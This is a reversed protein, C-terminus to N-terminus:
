DSRKAAREIIDTTSIGAMRPVNIFRDADLIVQYQSNYEKAKQSDGDMLNGAVYDIKLKDLYDMTLDLPAHAVVEDVSPCEKFHAIREEMNYLPTRKYSEVVENSHVGIVVTVNETQAKKATLARTKLIHTVHGIHCADGVMTTLVRVSKGEKGKNSRSLYAHVSYGLFAGIIFGPLAKEM